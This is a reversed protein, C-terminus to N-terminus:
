FNKAYIIAEKANVATPEKDKMYNFMKGIQGGTMEPMAQALENITELKEIDNIEKLVDILKTMLEDKALGKAGQYRKM